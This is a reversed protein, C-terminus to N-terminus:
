CIWIACSGHLMRITKSQQDAVPGGASVVTRLIWSLISSYGSVKRSFAPSLQQSLCCYVAIGHLIAPGLIIWASAGGRLTAALCISAVVSHLSALLPAKYTKWLREAAPSSVHTWPMMAQSLSM